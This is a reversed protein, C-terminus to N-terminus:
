SDDLLSASHCGPSMTGKSLVGSVLLRIRPTKPEADTGWHECDESVATQVWQGNVPGQGHSSDQLPLRQGPAM